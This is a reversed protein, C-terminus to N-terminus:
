FINQQLRQSQYLQPRVKRLGVGAGGPTLHVDIRVNKFPDPQGAAAAARAEALIQQGTLFRQSVTARTALLSIGRSSSLQIFSVAPASLAQQDLELKQVAVGADSQLIEM